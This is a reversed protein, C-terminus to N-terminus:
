PAREEVYAVLGTPGFTLTRVSYGDAELRERASARAADLTAVSLTPGPRPAAGPEMKPVVFTRVAHEV